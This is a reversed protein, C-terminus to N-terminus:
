RASQLPGRDLHPSEMLVDPSSRRAKVPREESQEVVTKECSRDHVGPAFKVLTDFSMITDATQERDSMAQEALQCM